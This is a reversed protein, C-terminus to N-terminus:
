PVTVMTTGLVTEPDAANVVVLTYDGPPLDVIEGYVTFDCICRCPEITYETELVRLLADERELDLGISDM